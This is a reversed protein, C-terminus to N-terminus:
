GALSGLMAALRELLSGADLLKVAVAAAVVASVASLQIFAGLAPGLLERLPKGLLRGVQATQHHLSGRGGHKGAEVRRGAAEWTWGSGGLFIALPMGAVLTGAAYGVAGAAGLLLGALVPATVALLGPRLVQRAFSAAAVRICAPLDPEAEPKLAALGPVTRWQRRSEELLRATTRGLGGLVLAAFLFVSVAGVLAGAALMPAAMGNAFRHMLGALGAGAVAELCAPIAALAALSTAGLAATRASATLSGDLARLGEVPEDAGGQVVLDRAGSAITGCAGSTATIGSMGAMGVAALGIGYLGLAPDALGGGLGYATLAACALAAMPLGVSRLGAGLGELLVGVMGTESQAAVTRAPNLRDSSFYESSRATVVAAAVGAVIGGWLGFSALPLALVTVLGSAAALAAAAVCAGAYLGRRLEAPSSISGAPVWLAWGLSLAIGLGTVAFPLAVAALAQGPAAHRGSFAVAGLVAAAALALCQGAFIEAFFGAVGSAMRGVRASAAAPNRPDDEPVGAEARILLDSGLAAAGSLMGGGLGALLAQFAAGLAVFLLVAAVEAASSNVGLEPALWTMGGFWASATLAAAAATTLGTSTAARFAVIWPRPQTGSTAETAAAARRAARVASGLGLAGFLAPCLAGSLFAFAATKPVLELGFSALALLLFVATAALLSFRGQRRLWAGLGSEILRGPKSPEGGVPARDVERRCHWAGALAALAGLPALLWLLIAGM